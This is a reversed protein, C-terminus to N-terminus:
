KKLWKILWPLRNIKIHLYLKEKAGFRQYFSALKPDDSGEFDLIINKKANMEIVKDILFFMARKKRGLENLASFLFVSRNGINLFLASGLYDNELNIDYTKIAKQKKGKEILGELITYDIPHSKKLDKGKYLSFTEIMKRPDESEVIQLNEARTKKINRQTNKHFHSFLTDYDTSLDLEYNKRWKQKLGSFSRKLENEHNLNFEAYSFHDSVVSIISSVLEDSPKTKGFVGMQQTFDPPYIYNIGWKKRYPLALAFEYDGVVIGKWQPSTCDLYWSLSYPFASPNALLLNDWRIRDIAQNDMIVIDNM